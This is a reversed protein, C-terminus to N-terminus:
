EYKGALLWKLDKEHAIRSARFGPQFYKNVLAEGMGVYPDRDFLIKISLCSSSFTHYGIKNLYEPNNEILMILFLEFPVFFDMKGDLVKVAYTDMLRQQLRKLKIASDRPHPKIIVATGAEEHAKLYEFYAEIEDEFTMKQAESFNTTLLFVVKPLRLMADNGLDLSLCQLYLNFTEILSKKNTFKVPWSPKEDTLELTLYYGVEFNIPKLVNFRPRRSPNKFYIKLAEWRYALTKIGKIKKVSSTFTKEAFYDEPIFLGISDGYCIKVSSCICHMVIKNGRHWNSTLYLEDVKGIGTLDSMMNRAALLGGTLFQSEIQSIIDPSLYIIKEFKLPGAEGMKKIFAFFDVDQGHPAYLEYVLLYTKYNFEHNIKQNLVVSTATILQISGQCGIVRIVEPKL